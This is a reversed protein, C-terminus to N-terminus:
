IKKKKKEKKFSKVNEEEKECIFTSTLRSVGGQNNM